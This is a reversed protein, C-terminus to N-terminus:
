DQNKNEIYEDYMKRLKQVDEWTSRKWQPNRLLAAPHYTVLMKKGHYEMVKGRMEGMKYNGKLLTNLAIRGLVLIFEPNILEIQKQLYPECEAVEKKEPDRNGPPRCKLINCIFVDERKFDIAELIKTLLQGARGVFPKGQEDEDRGPAEGIVMIDANPNGTGFVFNKRLHGLQCNKCEKINEHLELADKSDKWKPDVTDGEPLLPEELKKKRPLPKEEKKIEQKNEIAVPKTETPKMEVQDEVETEDNVNSEGFLLDGEVVKVNTFYDELRHILTM